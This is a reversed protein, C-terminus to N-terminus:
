EFIITPIVSSLQQIYVGAMNEPHSSTLFLFFLFLYVDHGM